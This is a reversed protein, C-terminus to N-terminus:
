KASALAATVDDDGGRRGAESLSRCRGRWWTLAGRGHAGGWGSHRRSCCTPAALVAVYWGHGGHHLDVVHGVTHVADFVLFGTLATTVADQVVRSLLLVAALGLPSAGLDRLFHVASGSM